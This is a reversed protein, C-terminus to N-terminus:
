SSQIDSLNCLIAMEMLTAALPSQQKSMQIHFFQV